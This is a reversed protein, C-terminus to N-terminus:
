CAYSVERYKQIMCIGDNEQVWNFYAVGFDLIVPTGDGGNDFIVYHATVTGNQEDFLFDAFHHQAAVQGPVMLREAVARRLPLITDGSEWQADKGCFADLSSVDRTDVAWAFAGVVQRLQTWLRPDAASIFQTKM